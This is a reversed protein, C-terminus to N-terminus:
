YFGGIPLERFYIGLISWLQADEGKLADKACEKKIYEIIYISDHVNIKRVEKEKGMVILSTNAGTLFARIGEELLMGTADPYDKYMQNMESCYGGTLGHTMLNKSYSNNLTLSNFLIFLSITLIYFKKSM